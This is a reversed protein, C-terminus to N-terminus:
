INELREKANKIALETAQTIHEKKLKKFDVVQNFGVLLPNNMHNM